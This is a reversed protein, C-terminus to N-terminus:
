AAARRTLRAILSVALTPPAVMIFAIAVIPLVFVVFLLGWCFHERWTVTRAPSKLPPLPPCDTISALGSRWAVFEGVFVALWFAGLVCSTMLLIQQYLRM